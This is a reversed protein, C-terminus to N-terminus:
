RSRLWRYTGILNLIRPAIEAAGDRFRLLADSLLDFQRRNDFEKAPSNSFKCSAFFRSSITTGTVKRKIRSKSYPKNL